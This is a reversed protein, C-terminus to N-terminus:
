WSLWRQRVGLCRQTGTMTIAARLDDSWPGRFDALGPSNCGIAVWSNVPPNLYLQTVDHSPGVGM